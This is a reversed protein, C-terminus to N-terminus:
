QGKLNQNLFYNHVKTTIQHDTMKDASEVVVVRDHHNKQDLLKKLEGKAEGPGFIFVSDADVIRSLVEDYYTKLHNTYGRQQKDDDPVLQSEFSATSQKGDIRGLHKEVNSLIEFTEEKKDSVTVLVAKRHDIWVGTETKM